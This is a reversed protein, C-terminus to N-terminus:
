LKECAHPIFENCFQCRFSGDPKQSMNTNQGRQGTIMVGRGNKCDHNVVYYHCGKNKCEGSVTVEFRELFISM